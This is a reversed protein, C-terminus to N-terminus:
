LSSTKLDLHPHTAKEQPKTLKCIPRDKQQIRVQGKKQEYTGESHRGRKFSVLGIPNPGWRM